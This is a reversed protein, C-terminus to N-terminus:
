RWGKGIKMGKMIRERSDGKSVEEDDNENCNRIGQWSSKRREAKNRKREKENKQNNM